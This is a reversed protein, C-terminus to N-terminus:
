SVFSWGKEDEFQDYPIQHTEGDSFNLRVTSYSELMRMKAMHSFFEFMNQLQSQPIYTRVVLSNRRLVKTVGLVFFLKGIMSYFKNMALTNSFELMVEHYTSIEKPYLTVHLEFRQVIGAPVLRKDYHYKVGQLSIGLVPSMAAFSTRANRELERVVLLDRKDATVSYDDPDEITTSPRSRKLQSSWKDWEFSWVKKTSNYYSFTPFNPVFDAATIIRQHTALKMASLRGLYKRFDKVSKVPVAYVSYHTFPGECATVSQWFNPIKLAATVRDEMGPRATVFVLIKILGLKSTKPSLRAISGTKAELKGVRHYVSTFPIGTKRSIQLLNRPGFKWMTSLIKINTQDLQKSVQRIERQWDAVRVKETRLM